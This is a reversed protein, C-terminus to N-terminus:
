FGKLIQFEQPIKADAHNQVVDYVIGEMKGLFNNELGVGANNLWTIILYNLRKNSEDFNSIKQV